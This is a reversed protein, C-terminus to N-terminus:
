RVQARNLLRKLVVRLRHQHQQVGLASGHGMCRDRDAVRVGGLVDGHGSAAEVRGDAIGKGAHRVLCLIQLPCRVCLQCRASAATLSHRRNGPNPRIQRLDVLTPIQVLKRTRHLHRTITEGLGARRGQRM